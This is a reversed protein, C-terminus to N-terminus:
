EEETQQLRLQEEPSLGEDQPAFRPDIPMNFVRKFGRVLPESDWSFGEVANQDNIADIDARLRLTGKVLAPILNGIREAQDKDIGKYEAISYALVDDAYDGYISQLWSYTQILEAKVEEMNRGDVRPINGIVRGVQLAWEAPIPARAKEPVDFSAQKELMLRVFAQVQNPPVAQGSADMSAIQQYAQQVDPYELAAQDPNRARLNQVRDVEKQVAAQIQQQAAFDDSGPIPAYDNFRQEMDEPAMTAIGETATFTRQAVDKKATYTLYDDEGLITAIATEDLQGSGAGTARILAIENDMRQKIEVKEVASSKAAATAQRAVEQDAKALFDQATDYPLSAYRTSVARPPPTTGALHESVVSSAWKPVSAASHDPGWARRGGLDAHITNGYVGIGTVGSASLSKILEIKQPITMGSVDLDLANADLHQSKDAGGVAKNKAASREASNVKVNKLGLTAYADAVRGVLDPNTKSTDAGAFKVDAAAGKAVPSTLDAMIAKKYKRTEASLVKDNYGSEVWKQAVGPGANYAVLATEIPNRTNAFARLQKKLYHEGYMKSVYPNSLYARIAGEPAGKPFATDGLEVAIEAATDPMVQMLGVAGKGSVANPNDRSEQWQM